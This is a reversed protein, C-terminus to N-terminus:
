AVVIFSLGRGNQLAEMIVVIFNNVKAGDVKQLFIM